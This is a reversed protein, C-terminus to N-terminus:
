KWYFYSLKDFNLYFSFMTGLDIDKTINTFLIQLTSYNILLHKPQAPKLNYLKLDKNTKHFKKLYVPNYVRLMSKQINVKTKFIIKPDQKFNLSIIDGNKVLYSKSKIIKNNVLFKGYSILQQAHEISYCFKARYLIVDLRREFLELFQLNYKVIKKGKKIQKLKNKLVKKRYNGYFLNFKKYSQLINKHSKRHSSYKDPFESVIYKNQIFYPTSKNSIKRKYFSIFKGWKKREFKFIKRKQQPNERLKLLKKYKPKFRSKKKLQFM